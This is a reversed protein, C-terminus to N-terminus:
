PFSVIWGEVSQYCASADSSLFLDPGAYRRLAQNVKKRDNKKRKPPVTKPRTDVAVACGANGARHRLAFAEPNRNKM